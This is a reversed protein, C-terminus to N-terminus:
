FYNTAVPYPIRSASSHPICKGSEWSSPKLKPIQGFGM